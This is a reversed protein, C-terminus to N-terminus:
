PLEDPLCEFSARVVDEAGDGAPDGFESGRRALTEATARSKNTRSLCDLLAAEVAKRNEQTLHRVAILPSGPYQRVVVGAAEFTNEHQKRLNDLSSQEVEDPARSLVYEHGDDTAHLGSDDLTLPEM